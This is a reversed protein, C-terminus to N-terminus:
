SQFKTTRILRLIRRMSAEATRTSGNCRTTDWLSTTAIFFDISEHHWREILEISAPKIRGIHYPLDKILDFVDKLFYRSHVWLHNYEFQVVDIRREILLQRAGHLVNMDHGETDVKVLHVHRVGHGTFFAALTIKEVNVWGGPPARGSGDFHISNTGGSESMLAMRAPGSDDSIALAHIEALEGREQAALAARLRERTRAVPEFCDIRVTHRREPPLLRLLSLTWDGQNAGIDIVRLQTSLPVARIVCEQVYAEGDAAIDQSVREGRAACYLARGARWAIRRLSPTRTLIRAIRHSM